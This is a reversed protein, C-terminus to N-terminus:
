VCIFTDGVCTNSPPTFACTMSVIETSADAGFAANNNEFDCNLCIHNCAGSNLHIAGGSITAVNQKFTLNGNNQNGCGEVFLGGGYKADNATFNSNIFLYSDGMCRAGGGESDAMNDSFVTQKKM